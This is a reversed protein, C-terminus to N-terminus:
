RELLVDGNENKDRVMFYIPDKRWLIGEPSIEITAFWSFRQRKKRGKEPTIELILPSYWLWIENSNRENLPVKVAADKYVATLETRKLNPTPLLEKEIRGEEFEHTEYSVFTHVKKDTTARVIFRLPKLGYRGGYGIDAKLSTNGQEDFWALRRLGLSGFWGSFAEARCDMATQKRSNTVEFTIDRSFEWTAGADPLRRSQTEAVIPKIVLKPGRAVANVAKSMGYIAGMIIIVASINELTLNQLLWQYLSSSDVIIYRRRLNNSWTGSGLSLLSFVLRQNFLVM